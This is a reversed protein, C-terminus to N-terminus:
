AVKWLNVETYTDVSLPSNSPAGLGTTGNTAALTFHRISFVKAASITFKGSIQSSTVNFVSSALTESSGILTYTADTVNYFFAQHGQTGSGPARALCEYTGAPLTIQNSALLAGPIENNITTNIVRTQTVDNAINTGGPSGVAKQDVFKAYPYGVYPAGNAPTYDVVNAGATDGRVRARAGAATLINASGPLLLAAGHTLTLAGDFILTREAGVPITIATITTTGTIHILNGTATTLNITAASAIDAGKVENQAYGTHTTSFATASGDNRVFGIAVAPLAGTFSLQDAYNKTISLLQWYVGTYAISYVNGVVLDNAVLAAGSVSKIDKVGLGSVNFTVAGTNTVTPSFIAIMRSSYAPVATTPTLTYANVAGGDVGTVLIAGTFGAFCQRLAKKINRHHDDSTSAADGGLPWAQNLDAVYNVTELGM